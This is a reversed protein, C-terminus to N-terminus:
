PAEPDQLVYRSVEELTMRAGEEWSAELEDPSLL